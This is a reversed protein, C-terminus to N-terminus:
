WALALVASEVAVEFLSDRKVSRDIVARSAVVSSSRADRVGRPMDISLACGLGSRNRPGLRVTGDRGADTLAIDM